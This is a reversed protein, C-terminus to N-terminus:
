TPVTSARALSWRRRAGPNRERLEKILDAGYGDPLGLDLVAVDIPHETEELMGRVQAMSGAQGVVEFGEGEFTSALAERIAAHDEVLLIRVAEGEPEEDKLTMEFRVRTGSEPDSEIKIVGGLARARERMGRIGMGGGASLAQESDEEQQTADYGRGDDQVEAWLTEETIGVGVRVNEAGSHRRVNTLAEGVIRLLQRGREGLPGSLVGDHVEYAINSQPAMERHLEVLAELLKPFNKDPEGELRLDYIAGRLQPGIKDLTALLRVLRQTQQPDKSVSHIQQLQVLADTLEQLPEDHLDRAIRSREAERGEEVREEADQREIATALVNALAQLFNADDDSFFRHTTTFAGLVGFPGDRGHIVVSMGSVAGREHALPPPGFRTETGLDEAIVPEESLLTFGTQSDLGAGERARGVLGEEFGVGARLLLEEGGPLLEVIKAYEVGLTRAVCAVGEDMLSDLDDSALARLGLEAVAAQQHTRKEIEQEARERETIDRSYVSLGEESPYIHVEVWRESVPSYAEFSVTKQESLSRHAQRYFTTGVLEPYFEWVNKGLVEELTLEEGKVRRIIDLERENVYTYRWERDVATFEDPISELIHETRRSSEKLEEESRKQETIDYVVAMGGIIRGEENYVPSSNYRSWFRSGDALLHIIEEDRIEEGSTISRTLPWEEVEYSRGDPHLMKFENSEQLGRYEGLETPVRQGLVQDTWRQAERNTFVIEGSPAEVVIVAAPMQQLVEESAAKMIGQPDFM